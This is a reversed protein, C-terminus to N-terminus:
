CNLIFCYFKGKLYNNYFNIDIELKNYERKEEGDIYIVLLIVM